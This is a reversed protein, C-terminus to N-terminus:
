LLLRPLPAHTVPVVCRRVYLQDLLTKRCTDYACHQESKAKLPWRPEAHRAGSKRLLSDRALVNSGTSSELHPRADDVFRGARASYRAPMVVVAARRKGHRRGNRWVGRLEFIKGQAKRGVVHEVYLEFPGQKMIYISLDNSQRGGNPWGHVCEIFRLHHARDLTVEVHGICFFVAYEPEPAFVAGDEIV